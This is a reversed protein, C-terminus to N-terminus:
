FLMADSSLYATRSINVADIAIAFAWVNRFIEKLYQFNVACVIQCHQTVEVDSIFIM